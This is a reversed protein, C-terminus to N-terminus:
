NEGQFAARIAATDEFGRMAVVRGQDVTLVHAFRASFARGTLRSRGGYTGLAVVHEGCSLLEDPEVRVDDVAQGISAFYEGVDDRGHYDGRSWPLTEPTLWEVDPDLLGLFAEFDGRAAASYLAEVTELPSPM